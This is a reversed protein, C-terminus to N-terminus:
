ARYKEDVDPLHLDNLSTTALDGIDYCEEIDIIRQQLSLYQEVYMPLKALSFTGLLINIHNFSKCLKEVIGEKQVMCGCVVIISDKHHKLNGLFGLIKNEASQRICCTNVVILNASAINHANTHGSQQLLGGILASDSENMQCGFTQIFYKM